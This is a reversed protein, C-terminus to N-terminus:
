FGYSLQFILNNNAQSHDSCNVFEYDGEFWLTNTIYYVYGATLRGTRTGLGDNKTDYRGVLELSNIMPFDLELGALKYGAQVWWGRPTFTGHDTSQVWTNVYEGKVEFNPSLHMAGDFVFASWLKNDMDNWTGSQGSVGLEVDSHAQWPFFWGVRGGASPSGHLNMTRGDATLGVNGGLDLQDSTATGDSSSPGNVGYVAYTVAQGSDGVPMAGRLQLGVGAGPLVDRPLPSDPMKNLWGASRESYTGLPLLMDGAVVTVYDNFLYDLTGFSLSVSNGSGSDHTGLPNSGNQLVVDFGAEFLIKDTARFLFIPAFDALAFASHQGETKAFQVEADGVVMFNQLADPGTAAPTKASAEASAATQQAEEAKKQAAEAKQQTETTTKQTVGQQEKLQQIEQRDEQHAKQLDQIQQSQQQMQQQMKQFDEDSVALASACGITLATLILFYTKM